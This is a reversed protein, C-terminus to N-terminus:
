QRYRHGAGHRWEGREMGERDAYGNRGENLDKLWTNENGETEVWWCQTKDMLFGKTYMLQRLSPAKDRVFERIAKHMKDSWEFHDRLWMLM